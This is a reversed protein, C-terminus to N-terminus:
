KQSIWGRKEGEYIVESTLRYGSLNKRHKNYLRLFDDKMGRKLYSFLLSFVAKVPVIRHSSAELYSWNENACEDNKQSECSYAKMWRPLFYKEKKGTMIKYAKSLSLNAEAKRGSESLVLSKISYFLSSTLDRKELDELLNESDKFEKMKFFCFAKLLDEMKKDEDKQSFNGKVCRRGFVFWFSYPYIQTNKKALSSRKPNKDLIFRVQSTFNLNEKEFLNRTIINLVDYEQAYPTYPNSRIYTLTNFLFDKQSEVLPRTKRKEWLKLTLSFLLFYFEDNKVRKNENKLTKLFNMLTEFSEKNKLNLFYVMALNIASEESLPNKRLASEFSSIAQNYDRGQMFILGFLNEFFDDPRQEQSKREELIRKALSTELGEYALLEAFPVHMQHPLKNRRYLRKLFKLSEVRKGKEFLEMAIQEDSKEEQFSVIDKQFKEMFLYGSFGIVIFVTVAGIIVKFLQSDLFSPKQISTPTVTIPPPRKPIYSSTSPKETKEQPLDTKKKAEDLETITQTKLATKDGQGSQNGIRFSKCSLIVEWYRKGSSVQDSPVFEHTDIKKQLEEQTFPGFFVNSSKVLWIRRKKSNM